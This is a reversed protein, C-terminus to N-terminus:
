LPSLEAGAMMGKASSLGSELPGLDAGIEMFAAGFKESVM